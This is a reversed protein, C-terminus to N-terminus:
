RLFMVGEQSVENTAEVLNRGPEEAEYEEVLKEHEAEM